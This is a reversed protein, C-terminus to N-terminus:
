RLAMAGAHTARLHFVYKRGGESVEWTQAVDPVVDMEPSLEVLMSFLQSMVVISYVDLVITPLLPQPEDWFVRLAHPAAPLSVAPELEGARQWLVFGEEYAQHAQKFDFASHYTLGLKMLARAAQQHAGQEKMLALSRQYYDIAEQHAYLGRARDGAQNM